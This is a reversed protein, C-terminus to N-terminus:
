DGADDGLPRRGQRRVVGRGVPREGPLREDDAAADLPEGPILRLVRDPGRAALRRSRDRLLGVVQHRARTGPRLELLGLLERNGHEVARGERTQQRALFGLRMIAGNPAGPHPGRARGLSSGIDRRPRRDMSPTTATIAAAQEFPPAAVAAGVVAGVAAGDGAGAEASAEYAADTGAEAGAEAGADSGADAARGDISGLESSPLIM